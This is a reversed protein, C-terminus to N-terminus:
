LSFGNIESNEIGSNKLLMLIRKRQDFKDAFRIIRDQDLPEFNDSMMDERFSKLINAIDAEDGSARDPNNAIAMLKLVIYDTPQVVQIHGYIDDQISCRRNLLDRGDQTSVFMFDIRGLMGMESDFQAFMDTKQFCTYGLQNMKTQIKDWFRNETLLDIDATYRPLGYIGLAVAGIAAFPIEEDSLNSAIREFIQTLKPKEM